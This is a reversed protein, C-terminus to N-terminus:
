LATITTTMTVVAIATFVSNMSSVAAPWLSSSILALSTTLSSFAASNGLANAFQQAEVAFDDVFHDVPKPQIELQSSLSDLLDNVIDLRKKLIEVRDDIDLYRNVRRYLPEFQEAQPGRATPVRPDTSSSGSRRPARRARGM